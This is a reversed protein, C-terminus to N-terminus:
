TQLYETASVRLVNSVYNQAETPLPITAKVWIQYVDDTDITTPIGVGAGDAGGQLVKRFAYHGGSIYPATSTGDDNAIWFEGISFVSIQQAVANTYTNAVPANFDNELVSGLVFSGPTVAESTNSIITGLFQGNEDNVAKGVESNLGSFNTTITGTGSSFTVGTYTSSTLKQSLNDVYVQINTYDYAPDRQLYLPSGIGGAGNTVDVGANLNGGFSVSM